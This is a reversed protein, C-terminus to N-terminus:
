LRVERFVCIVQWRTEARRRSCKPTCVVSRSPVASPPEPQVAGAEKRSRSRAVFDRASLLRRLKQGKLARSGRHRTPQPLVPDPPTVPSATRAAALPSTRNAKLGAETVVEPALNAEDRRLEGANKRSKYRGDEGEEFVMVRPRCRGRSCLLQFAQYAGLLARCGPHGSLNARPRYERSPEAEEGGHFPLPSNAVRSCRDRLFVAEQLNTFSCPEKSFGRCYDTAFVFVWM